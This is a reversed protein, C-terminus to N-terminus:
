LSNFITFFCLGPKCKSKIKGHLVKADLSVYSIVFYNKKLM